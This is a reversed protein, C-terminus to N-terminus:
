VNRLKKLYAVSDLPAKGPSWDARLSEWEEQTPPLIKERKCVVLVWDHWLARELGGTCLKYPDRDETENDKTYMTGRIGLRLM